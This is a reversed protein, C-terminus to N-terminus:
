SRMMEATFSASRWASSAISPFIFASVLPSPSLPNPNQDNGRLSVISLGWVTHPVRTFPPYERERFLTDGKQDGSLFTQM